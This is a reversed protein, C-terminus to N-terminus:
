AMRGMVAVLTLLRNLGLNRHASDFWEETTHINGGTGGAGISIAPIGRAMPLNADTSGIDLHPEAGVARTAEMAAAVLPADAPTRGSPRSGIRQVRLEVDHIQAASQVAARLRNQLLDLNAAETARIDVEMVADPPIVNIGIGGQVVGVNFTSGFPLERNSESFIAIAQALAHIPNPKGFDAWSHGGPGEMRIRFRHSGLGQHIIKHLGAGDITIFDCTRGEWPPREFLRRVGRLNGEGEEGVNAVLLVPRGFGIGTEVVARALWLLAALGSGNDSIGPLHLVSGRRRLQLPTSPPFVTDLHAAVVVPDPGPSGLPVVVNGIADVVPGLGLGKLLECVHGAREAEAFPPAPIQSIRIQEDQIQPESKSFLRFARQIRPEAILASVSERITQSQEAPPTM